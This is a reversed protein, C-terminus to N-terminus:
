FEIDSDIQQMSILGVEIFEELSFGPKTYELIKTLSEDLACM